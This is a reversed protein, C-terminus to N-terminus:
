RVKRGDIVMIGFKNKKFHVGLGRKQKIMKYIAYKTIGLVKSAELVTM